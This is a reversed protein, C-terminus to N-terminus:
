VFKRQQDATAALLVDIAALLTGAVIPTDSSSVAGSM